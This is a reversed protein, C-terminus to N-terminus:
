TDYRYRKCWLWDGDPISDRSMIRGRICYTFCRIEYPRVSFCFEFLLVNKDACSNVSM